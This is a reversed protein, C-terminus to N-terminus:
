CPSRILRRRQVLMTQNGRLLDFAGEFDEYAAEFQGLLFNSVGAQYYAIALYTDLDTAARFNEIALEHEGLTAYILGINTLIKSNDAIKAFHDLATDFEQSDYAVLAKAWTEIEFQFSM